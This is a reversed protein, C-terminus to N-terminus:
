ARIQWIWGRPQQLPEPTRQRSRYFPRFLCTQLM